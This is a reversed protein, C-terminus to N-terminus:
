FQSRNSAYEAHSMVARPVYLHEASASSDFLLAGVFAIPTTWSGHVRGDFRFRHSSQQGEQRPVERDTCTVIYTERDLDQTM